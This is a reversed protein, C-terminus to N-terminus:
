LIYYEKKDSVIKGENKNILHGSLPIQQGYKKVVWLPYNSFYSDDDLKIKGIYVSDYNQTWVGGRDSIRINLKINKYEESLIDYDFVMKQTTLSGDYPDNINNMVVKMNKLFVAFRIIGYNDKSNVVNNVCNTYDTFYYYNGMIEENTELTAGFTLMFDVKNKPCKQYLVLPTELKNNNEDYLYLFENNNTFFDIVECSIKFNCVQNENIIEDILVLWLDNTRTLKVSEINLNTCDFFLYINNEISLHGKYEYNIDKYYSICLIDMVNISKIIANEEGTFKFKPFTFIDGDNKDKKQLFFQLFPHEGSTNIHYACINIYINDPNKIGLFDDNDINLLDLANYKVNNKQMISSLNKKKNSNEKNINLLEEIHKNLENLKDYIEADDYNDEDNDEDEDIFKLFDKNFLYENKSLM